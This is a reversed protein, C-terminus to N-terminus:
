DASLPLFEGSGAQRPKGDFIREDGEADNQADVKVREQEEQFFNGV